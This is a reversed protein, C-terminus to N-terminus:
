LWVFASSWVLRVWLEGASRRVAGIDLFRRCTHLPRAHPLTLNRCMCCHSHTHTHTCLGAAAAAVPANVPESPRFVDTSLSVWAQGLAATSWPAHQSSAVSLWDRPPPLRSLWDSLALRTLDEPARSGDGLCGPVRALGVLLLPSRHTRSMMHPTFRLLRPTCKNQTSEGEAAESNISSFSLHFLFLFLPWSRRQLRGGLDEAGRSPESKATPSPPSPTM